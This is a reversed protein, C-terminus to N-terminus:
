KTGQLRNINQELESKVIEVQSEMDTNRSGTSELIEGMGKMSAQYANIRDLARRYEDVAKSPESKAAYDDGLVKHAFIYSPEVIEPVARVTEYPSEEVDIMRRYTELMNSKMAMLQYQRALMLLTQPSQPDYELSKKYMEIANNNKGAKEYARALQYYGKASSPALHVATRYEYIAADMIRDSPNKALMTYLMGRKRHYDANLADYMQANWYYSTASELRGALVQSRASQNWLEGTLLMQGYIFLITTILLFVIRYPSKISISRAGGSLSVAMGALAWFSIGISTIYWDSDVANRAISAAAGAVIGCLILKTDLMWIDGPMPQDTEHDILRRRIIKLMAPLIATGLLAILALMAPIGAEGALQIYSNHALKTFGVIAYKSYGEEFTGIGTGIIPNSIAMKATGKWTLLRFSGSHSEAKVAAVSGMRATLPTSLMLMVLLVPVAIVALKILQTKRISGMLISLIAFLIMGGTAAIFGLRSGTLLLNAFMLVTAVGTIVSVKATNASLYWALVVPLMMAAFGALFDPNFFTSFTRWGASATLIYERLGIVSVILASLCLSALISTIAAKNKGYSIVLLFVLLYSAINLLERLSLGKNISGFVSVIVLLAFMVLSYLVPKMPINTQYATKSRYLWIGGALFVILQIVFAPEPLLKGAILPALFIALCIFALQIAYLRDIQPVSKQTKDISKKRAM